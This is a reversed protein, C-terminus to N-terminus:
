CKKKELVPSGNNDYFSVKVFEKSINSTIADTAEITINYISDDEHSKSIDVIKGHLSSDLKKEEKITSRQECVARSGVTLGKVGNSDVRIVVLDKVVFVEDAEAELVLSKKPILLADQHQDVITFVSAFMGPRLAGGLLDKMEITAKVTGSDPDVVPSVMKVKGMFEIGPLFESVVRASQGEVVKNIDREPIYIKALIPDFDAIKFVMQGKEINYGEEINREVIVGDIPSEIATYEYELQKRELEVTAIELQFRKDEFEEKSIIKETFNDLSNKYVRDANEKKLTADRLALLAEDDELKALLTGSKVHDGEEVLINLVIGSTKAEVDVQKEPELTSNNVLFIEINSRKVRIAEVPVAESNKGYNGHYVKHKSEVKKGERQLNNVPLDHSNKTDKWVTLKLVLLTVAVIGICVFGIGIVFKSKM